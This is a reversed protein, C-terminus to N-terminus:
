FFFHFNQTKKRGNKKQNGSWNKKWIKGGIEGRLKKSSKGRKHWV